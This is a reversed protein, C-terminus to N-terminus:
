TESFWIITHKKKQTEIIMVSSFDTDVSTVIASPGTSRFMGGQFWFLSIILIAAISALKLYINGLIKKLSSQTTLVLNQKLAAPDIKLGTHGAHDNFMVTLNKYKEVLSRCDPCDRLHKALEHYRAQSLENDVFRSIDESRYRSCTKKM